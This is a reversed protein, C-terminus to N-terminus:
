ETLETKKIVRGSKKSIVIEYSRNDKMGTFIYFVQREKEEQLMAAQDGSYLHPSYDTGYNQLQPSTFGSRLVIRYAEMSNVPHGVIVLAALVFICLVDTLLVWMIGFIHYNRNYRKRHNSRRGGKFFLFSAIGLALGYIIYLYNGFKYPDPYLIERFLFWYVCIIVFLGFIVLVPPLIRRLRQRIGEPFNINLKLKLKRRENTGRLEKVLCSVMFVPIYIVGFLWASLSESEALERYNYESIYICFLFLLIHVFLIITTIVIVKFVKRNM